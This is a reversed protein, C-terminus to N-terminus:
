EIVLAMLNFFEFTRSQKKEIWYFNIYITHTFREIVTQEYHNTLTSHGKNRTLM